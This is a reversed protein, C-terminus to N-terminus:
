KKRDMKMVTGILWRKEIVSKWASNEARFDVKLKWIGMLVCTIKKRHMSTETLM